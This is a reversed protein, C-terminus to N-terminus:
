VVRLFNTRSFDYIQKRERGEERRESHERETGGVGMELM